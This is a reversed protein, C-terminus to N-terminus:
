AQDHSSLSATLAIGETGMSIGDSVTITGFIQPMAGSERIEDGLAHFDHFTVYALRTQAHVRCRSRTQCAREVQHDVAGPQRIEIRIKALGQGAIDARDNVQNFEQPGRVVRPQQM